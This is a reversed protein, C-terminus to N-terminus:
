SQGGRTTELSDEGPSREIGQSTPDNSVMLLEITRRELLGRPIIMSMCPGLDKSGMVIRLGNRRNAIPEDKTVGSISSHILARGAQLPLLSVHLIQKLGQPIQWYVSKSTRGAFVRQRAQTPHSRNPGRIAVDFKLSNKPTTM